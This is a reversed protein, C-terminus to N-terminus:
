KNKALSFEMKRTQIKEEASWTQVIKERMHRLHLNCWNKKKQPLLSPLDSLELLFKNAMNHQWQCHFTSLHSISFTGQGPFDAFNVPLNM